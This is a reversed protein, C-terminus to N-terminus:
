SIYFLRRSLYAILIIPETIIGPVNGMWIFSAPQMPGFVPGEPPQQEINVRRGICAPFPEPLETLMTHIRMPPRATCVHDIFRM